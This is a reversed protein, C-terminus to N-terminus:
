DQTVAGFKNFTIVKQGIGVTNTVTITPPTTDSFGQIEGSVPSFIIDNGSFSINNDITVSFVSTAGAFSAGQFLTYTNNSSFHVGFSGSGDTGNIAKAQQSKLDAVLMDRSTAISTSTQANVLSITTLGFLIGIISIVLLLEILTFGNQKIRINM